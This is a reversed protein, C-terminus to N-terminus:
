AIASAISDGEDTRTVEVTGEEAYPSEYESETVEVDWAGTKWNYAKLNGEADRYFPLDDTTSEIDWADTKVNYLLVKDEVMHVETFDKQQRQTIKSPYDIGPANKTNAFQTPRSKLSVWNNAGKLEVPGGEWTGLGDITPDAGVLSSAVPFTEPVAAAAERDAIHKLRQKESM